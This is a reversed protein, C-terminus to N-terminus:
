SLLIIALAVVPLAVVMWGLFTIDVGAGQLWSLAIANPPTGIPTGLGGINCAFPISLALAHTFPADAPLQSMIPLIIAFMMAATATNSMWMSLIASILIVALLLRSPAGGTRAMIWLAIRQDLHYKHLASSLTFGGLFLLIINSFFPSLFTQTPVPAGAESMAPALWVVQLAVIIFSTVFLPIAESIWLTAAIILISFAIQQQPTLGWSSPFLRLHAALASGFIVALTFLTSPKM